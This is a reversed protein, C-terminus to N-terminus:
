SQIIISIKYSISIENGQFQQLGMNLGSPSPQMPSLAHRSWLCSFQTQIGLVWTFAPCLLVQRYAWFLLHSGPLDWPSVPWGHVGPGTLSKTELFYPPCCYLSLFIGSVTRLGRWMYVCPPVCVCTCVCAYVYLFDVYQYCGSSVFNICDNVM